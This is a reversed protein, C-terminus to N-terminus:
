HGLCQNLTPVADHIQMGCDACLLNLLIKCCITVQFGLTDVDPSLHLVKSGIVLHFLSFSHRCFVIGRTQLSQAACVLSKLWFLLPRSLSSLGGGHNSGTTRLLRYCATSSKDPAMQKRHCASAQNFQLLCLQLNSIISFPTEFQNYM